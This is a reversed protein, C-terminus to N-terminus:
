ETLGHVQQKHRKVDSSLYGFFSCGSVSCFRTSHMEQSTKPVKLVIQDDALGHIKRLHIRYNMPPSKIKWDCDGVDCESNNIPRKEPSPLFERARIASAISNLWITTCSHARSIYRKAMVNKEPPGLSM